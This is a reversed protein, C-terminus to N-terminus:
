ASFMRITRCPRTGGNITTGGSHTNAGTLTLTGAGEKRLSGAGSIVGGYTLANSRNFVLDAGAHNILVDGSIKGTTGGDGIQLTGANNITTGGSYTNAGTLTLTGGTGHKTLSGTGTIPQSITTDFSSTRITGGGANLTIARNPDLDFSSDNWRLDGGDFTLSGSAAGLNADAFFEVIGGNLITGGSYTNAGSLTLNGTGSKQLNATGSIVGSVITNVDNNGINANADLIVNGAGSIGGFTEGGVIQLTAGANVQVNTSDSLSNSDGAQLTGKAVTIDNTYGANAGGLVLTGTGGKTLDFAGGLSGNLDLTTAGGINWISDSSLTVNSNFTHTADGVASINANILTLTDNNFTHGNAGSISFSQVSRNGNLDIVFDAATGDFVLVDDSDPFGAINWNSDGGSSADWAESVLSGDWTFVTARVPATLVVVM